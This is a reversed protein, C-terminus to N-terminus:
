CCRYRGYLHTLSDNVTEQFSGWRFFQSRILDIRFLPILEGLAEKM